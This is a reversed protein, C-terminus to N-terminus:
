IRIDNKLLAVFTHTHIVLSYQKNSLLVIQLDETVLIIKGKPQKDNRNQSFYNHIIARESTVSVKGPHFFFSILSPNFKVNTLKSM